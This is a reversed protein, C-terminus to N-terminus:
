LLIKEEKLTGQHVSWFSYFDHMVTGHSGRWPFQGGVMFTLFSSLPFCRPEPSRLVHHAAHSNDTDTGSTCPNNGDSSEDGNVRTGQDGQYRALRKSEDLHLIMHPSSVFCVLGASDFLSAPPSFLLTLAYRTCACAESFQWISDIRLSSRQGWHLITPLHEPLALPSSLGNRGM